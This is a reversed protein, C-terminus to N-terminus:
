GYITLEHIFLRPKATLYTFLRAYALLVYHGCQLMQVQYLVVFPLVDDAQGWLHQFAM